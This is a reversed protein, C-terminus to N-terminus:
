RGRPTGAPTLSRARRRLGRGALLARVLRLLLDAPRWVRMALYGLSSRRPGYIEDIQARSLFVTRWSRRVLTAAATGEGPRRLFSVLKLSAAYEADGTSTLLHRLLTEAGGGDALFADSGSAIEWAPGIPVRGARLALTLDRAAEWDSAALTGGVLAAGHDRFSRWALSDPLLDVLDGVLRLLPYDFPRDGHLAIGHVLLHAALVERDPALAGGMGVVPHVRGDRVLGAADLGAHGGVGHLSPHIEVCRGCPHRLPQLHHECDAVELPTLGRERLAAHLRVAGARSSLVDVDVAIRWGPPVIGAAHLAVGKLLVVPEGIRAAAEGVVRALAALVVSREATAVYLRRFARAPGAGVEATLRDHWRGAIRSAVSYRRALVFVAEPQIPSPVAAEAPGFARLLMWHLEPTLRIPPPDFRV